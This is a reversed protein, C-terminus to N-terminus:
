KKRTSRRNQEYSVKERGQVDLEVACAGAEKFLERVNFRVVKMLLVFKYDKWGDFTSMIEEERDLKEILLKRANDPNDSLKM